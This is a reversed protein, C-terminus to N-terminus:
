TGHLFFRFAQRQRGAPSHLAVTERTWLGVIEDAMAPFLLGLGSFNHRFWNDYWIRIGLRKLAGRFYGSGPRLGCGFLRFGLTRLKARSIYSLHADLPNWGTISNTGGRLDPYNPTAIIVRHRAVRKAERILLEANDEDLHEVIEVLLVSDFSCDDFPLPPVKLHLV